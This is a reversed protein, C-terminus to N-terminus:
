ITYNFYLYLASYRALTNNFTIGFEVGAGIKFGSLNFGRLDWGGSLSLVVGFSWVDTDSFTRDNLALLGVGEELFMKDKFYQTTIGKFTIGHVFPNYPQTTNPIIANFDKAFIYSFRPTVELFLTTNTEVFFSATFAAISPSNGQITGGGIFGGAGIRIQSYSTASIIFVLIFVYFTNIPLCSNKM